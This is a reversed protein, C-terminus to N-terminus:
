SQQGLPSSLVSSIPLELLRFSWLQRPSLASPRSSCTSRKGAVGDELLKRGTRESALPPVIVSPSSDACSPYPNKRPDGSPFALPSMSFSILLLRGLPSSLGRRDM